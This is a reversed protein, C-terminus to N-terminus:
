RWEEQNDCGTYRQTSRTSFGPDVCEDPKQDCGNRSDKGAHRKPLHSRGNLLPHTLRKSENGDHELDAGNQNLYQLAGASSVGQCVVQKFFEAPLCQDAIISVLKM